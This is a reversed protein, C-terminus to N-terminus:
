SSRRYLEYYPNQPTTMAPPDSGLRAPSRRTNTPQNSRPKQTINNFHQQLHPQQRTINSPLHNFLDFVFNQDSDPIRSELRWGGYGTMAPDSPMYWSHMGVRDRGM